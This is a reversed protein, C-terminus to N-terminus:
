RDPGRWFYIPPNGYYSCNTPYIECVSSQGSQNAVWTAGFPSSNTCEYYDTFLDDEYGGWDGRKSTAASPDRQSGAAESWQHWLWEQIGASGGVPAFLKTRQSCMWGVEGYTSDGNSAWYHQSGGIGVAAILRIFDSSLRYCNESWTYHASFGNNLIGVCVEDETNRNTAWRCAYDLITVHPKAEPTVPTALTIYLIHKSQNMEVWEGWGGSLNKVQYSWTVDLTDFFNVSNSLSSSYLQLEGSSWTWNQFASEQAFFNAKNGDGKVQVTTSHALPLNGKIELEAIAFGGQTYAGPQNKTVAGGLTKIWVPDTVANSGVSGLLLAHDNEWSLKTVEPLVAKITRIKEFTTGSITVALKVKITGNSKLTTQFDETFAASPDCVGELVSWAYTVDSLGSPELVGDFKVEEGKLHVDNETPDIIDVKLAGSRVRFFQIEQPFSDTWSVPSLSGIGMNTITWDGSVLSDAAMIQYYANTACNFTLSIENSDVVQPVIWLEGNSLSDAFLLLLFLLALTPCSPIKVEHDL